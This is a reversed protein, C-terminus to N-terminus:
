RSWQYDLAQWSTRYFHLLKIRFNMTRRRESLFFDEEREM